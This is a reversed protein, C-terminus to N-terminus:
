NKLDSTEEGELDYIYANIKKNNVKKLSNISLKANKKKMM